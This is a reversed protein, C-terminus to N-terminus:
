GPPQETFPRCEPLPDPVRAQLARVRAWVADSMAHKWVGTLTRLFRPDQRAQNEVREIAEHDFRGLMGELPGAALDQLIEDDDDAGAILELLVEWQTDLDAAFTIHVIASVAGTADEEAITRDAAAELYSRILDPRREDAWPTGDFLRSRLRGLRKPGPRQTAHWEAHERVHALREAAERCAPDDPGLRAVLIAHVRRAAAEAEDAQGAFVHSNVVIKLAGALEVSERGHAMEAQAADARASELFGDETDAWAEISRAEEDRGAARLYDCCTGLMWRAQVASIPPDPSLFRAVLDDFYPASEDTRGRRDLYDALRYRAELSEAADAGFTAEFGELAKRYYPEPDTPFERHDYMIALRQVTDATGRDAIGHLREHLALARLLLPEAEAYRGVWYRRWGLTAVLAALAADDCGTAEYAAIARLALAEAEADSADIQFLIGALTEITRLTEPHDPGLSSELLPLARRYEAVAEDHFQRVSALWGLHCHVSALWQAEFDPEQEALALARRLPPESDVLNQREWLARAEELLRAVQGVIDSEAPPNADPVPEM